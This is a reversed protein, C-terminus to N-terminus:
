FEPANIPKKCIHFTESCREAHLYGNKKKEKKKGHFETIQKKSIGARDLLNKDAKENNFNDRENFYCKQM